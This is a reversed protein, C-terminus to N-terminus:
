NNEDLERLILSLSRPSYSNATQAKLGHPKNILYHNKKAQEHLTILCTSGRDKNLMKWLYNM